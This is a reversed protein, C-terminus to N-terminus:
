PAPPRHHDRHAGGEEDGAGDQQGRPVRLDAEVHKIARQRGPADDESQGGPLRSRFSLGAESERPAPASCAGAGRQPAAGPAHVTHTCNRHRASRPSRHGMPRPLSRPTGPTTRTPSADSQPPTPTLACTRSTTLSAANAWPSNSSKATTSGPVTRRSSACSAGSDPASSPSRPSRTTSLTPSPPSAVAGALDAIQRNPMGGFADTVGALVAGPSHPILMDTHPVRDPTPYPVESM